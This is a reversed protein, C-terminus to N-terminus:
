LKQVTENKIEKMVTAMAAMMAMIAEPGLDRINVDLGRSALEQELAERMRNYPMQDPPQLSLTM